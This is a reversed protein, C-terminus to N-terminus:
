ADISDRGHVEVMIIDNLEKQLEVGDIEPHREHLRGLLQNYSAELISAWQRAYVAQQETTDKSALAELDQMLKVLRGLAGAASNTVRALDENSSVKYRSQLEAVMEQFQFIAKLFTEHKTLEIRDFIEQRRREVDEPELGTDNAIEAVSKIGSDRIIISDIASEKM